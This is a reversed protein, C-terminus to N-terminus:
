KTICVTIIHMKNCPMFLNWARLATVSAKFSLPNYLSVISLGMTTGNQLLDFSTTSGRILGCHYNINYFTLNSNRTPNSLVSTTQSTTIAQQTSTLVIRQLAPFGKGLLLTV